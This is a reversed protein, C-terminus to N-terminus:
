QVYSIYNIGLYIIITTTNVNFSDRQNYYIETSNRTDGNPESFFTFIKIKYNILRFSRTVIRVRYDQQQQM